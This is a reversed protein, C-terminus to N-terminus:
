RGSGKVSAKTKPVRLLVERNEDLLQLQPQSTGDGLITRVKGDRSFLLVSPWEDCASLIARRGGDEDCIEIRAEYLPEDVPGVGQRYKRLSAILPVNRLGLVLRDIRKKDRIILLGGGKDSSLSLGLVGEQNYFDIRAENRSGFSLAIKARSDPSVLDISRAVLKDVVQAKKSDQVNVVAGTLLSALM